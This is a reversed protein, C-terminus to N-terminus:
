ICPRLMAGSKQQTLLAYEKRCNCDLENTPNCYTRYASGLMNELSGGMAKELNTQAMLANFHSKLPATPNDSLEIGQLSANLKNYAFYLESMIESKVEEFEKKALKIRYCAGAIQANNRDFLPVELGIYPGVGHSRDFDRGYTVGVRVDKFIRARQMKLVHHAQEIKLQAMQLAPHNQLAYYELDEISPLEATHEQITGTFRIPKLNIPLGMLKKLHILADNLVNMAVIKEHEPMSADIREQNFICENYANKTQAITSLITMLIRQTVIDVEDRAINQKLPVLWLDSFSFSATVFLQTKDDIDSSKQVLLNLQPNTFLGAQVLDAKAIGLKEFDAQLTSNNMLAIGVAQERSLGQAPDIDLINNEEDYDAEQDWNIAASTMNRTTQSIQMMSRDNNIGKWVCGPTIILTGLQAVLTIVRWQKMSEDKFKESERKKM